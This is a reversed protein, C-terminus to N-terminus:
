KRENEFRWRQNGGSHRQLVAPPRTRDGADGAQQVGTWFRGHGPRKETDSGPLKSSQLIM